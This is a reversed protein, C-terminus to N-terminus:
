DNEVDHSYLLLLIILHLVFTMVIGAHSLPLADCKYVNRSAFILLELRSTPKEHLKKCRSRVPFSNQTPLFLKQTM